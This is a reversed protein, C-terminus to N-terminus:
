YLSFKLHPVESLWWSSSVDSLTRLGETMSLFWCNGKHCFAPLSTLGGEFSGCFFHGTGFQNGDQHLSESVASSLAAILRSAAAAASSSSMECMLPSLLLLVVFIAACKGTGGVSQNKVRTWNFMVPEGAPPRTHLLTFYSNSVPDDPLLLLYSQDM